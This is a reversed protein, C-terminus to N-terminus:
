EVDISLLISSFSFYTLPPMMDQGSLVVVHRRGSPSRLARKASRRLTSQGSSAIARPSTARSSPLHVALSSCRATALYRALKHAINVLDISTLCSSRLLWLHDNRALEGIKRSLYSVVDCRFRSRKGFKRARVAHMDEHASSLRCHLDIECRSEQHHEAVDFHEDGSIVDNLFEIVDPLIVWACSELSAVTRQSKISTSHM